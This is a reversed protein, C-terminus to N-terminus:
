VKKRSISSQSKYNLYKDMEDLTCKCFKDYVENVELQEGQINELKNIVNKIDQQCTDNAMFGDPIHSFDYVKSKLSLSKDSHSTFQKHVSFIDVCM